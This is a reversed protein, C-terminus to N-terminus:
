NAWAPCHRRWCTTKTPLPFPGGPNNPDEIYLLANDGYVAQLRAIIGQRGGATLVDLIKKARAKMQNGLAPGPVAGCTGGSRIFPMLEDLGQFFTFFTASAAATTV